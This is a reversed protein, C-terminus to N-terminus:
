GIPYVFLSFLQWRALQTLKYQLLAYAVLCGYIVVAVLLFQVQVSRSQTRLQSVSQQTRKIDAQLGTLM